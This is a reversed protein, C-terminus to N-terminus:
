NLEPTNILEFVKNLEPVFCSDGALRANFYLLTVLRKVSRNEKFAWCAAAFDGGAVHAVKDFPSTM